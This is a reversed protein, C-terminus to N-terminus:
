FLRAGGVRRRPARLVKRGPIPHLPYPFVPLRLRPPFSTPFETSTFFFSLVASALFVELPITWGASLQGSCGGGTSNGNHPAEAPRDVGTLPVEPTRNM